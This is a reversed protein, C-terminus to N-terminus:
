PYVTSLDIAYAYRGASCPTPVSTATSIKPSHTGPTTASSGSNSGFPSRIRAHACEGCLDLPDPRAPAGAELHEAAPDRVVVQLDLDVALLEHQAHGPLARVQEPDVAHDLDGCRLRRSREADARLDDLEDLGLSPEDRAEDLAPDWRDLPHTLRVHERPDGRRQACVM